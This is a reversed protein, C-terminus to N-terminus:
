VGSWQLEGHKSLLWHERQELATKLMLTEEEPPVSEDWACIEERDRARVACHMMGLEHARGRHFIRYLRGSDSGVVEMFAHRQYSLWQTVTSFARLVESARRRAPSPAPCGRKPPKATAAVLPMGKIVRLVKEASDKGLGKVQHDIEEPTAKAVKSWDGFATYLATLRADGLGKVTQVQEVLDADTAVTIQGAHSRIITWADLPSDGHHVARLLPGAATISCSLPMRTLGAGPVDSSESWGNAKAEALFTALLKSEEGTPDEVELLCAGGDRILRFDGSGNPFYWTSLM